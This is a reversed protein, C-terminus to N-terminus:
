LTIIVKYVNLSLDLSEHEIWWQDGDQRVTPKIDDDYSSQELSEVAAKMAQNFDLHDSSWHCLSTGCHTCDVYDRVCHEEVRWVTLRSTFLFKLKNLM